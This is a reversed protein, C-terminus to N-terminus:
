LEATRFETRTVDYNNLFTGFSISDKVLLTFSYDRQKNIECKICNM